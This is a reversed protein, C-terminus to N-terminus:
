EWSTSDPALEDTPASAPSSESAYSSTEVLSGAAGSLTAGVGLGIIAALRGVWRGLKRTRM